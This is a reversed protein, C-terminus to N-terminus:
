HEAMERSFKKKFINIVGGAKIIQIQRESMSHKLRIECNQTTNIAAISTKQDIAQSLNEILIKDGQKIKEYDEKKEFEFPIIGFNILNQWGIRAYSVAIVAQQGLFRPALAAHERSSGQAYNEGAVVIHGGFHEQAGEARQYFNPDLVYYSWKSIEPINSRFPLVDSGAKLIEDTSVNDKMKLLVPANLQEPLPALEPISKINPGKELDIEMENESPSLLMATNIKLREPRKYRTWSLNYKEAFKRPDTIEGEVASAAATEPSCLYVQDDLTGSRGPFNRPM